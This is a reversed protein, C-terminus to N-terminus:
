TEPLLEFKFGDQASGEQASAVPNYVEETGDDHKVDFSGNEYTDTIKGFFWKDEESWYM